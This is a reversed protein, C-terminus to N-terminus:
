RAHNIFFQPLQSVMFSAATILLGILVFTWKGKTVIAEHSDVLEVIGKRKYNPDGILISKVEKVTEHIADLRTDISEFQRQDSKTHEDLKEIIDHITENM